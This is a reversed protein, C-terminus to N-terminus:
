AKEVGPIYEGAGSRAVKSEFSYGEGPENAPDLLTVEGFQSVVSQKKAPTPTSSKTPRYGTERYAVQPV